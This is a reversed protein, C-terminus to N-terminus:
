KQRQDVTVRPPVKEIRAQNDRLLKERMADITDLAFIIRHREDALKSREISRGGLIGAL